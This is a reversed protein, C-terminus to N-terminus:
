APLIATSFLKGLIKEAEDIGCQEVVTRLIDVAVRLDPRPWIETPEFVSFLVLKRSLDSNLIEVNGTTHDAVVYCDSM